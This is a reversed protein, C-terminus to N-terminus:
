PDAVVPDHQARYIIRSPDERLRASLRALQDAVDRLDVVLASASDLGEGLLRDVSEDNSELWGDVRQSVSALNSSTSRLDAAILPWDEAVATELGGATRELSAIASKLSVVMAPIDERREAVASTLKHVDALIGEV